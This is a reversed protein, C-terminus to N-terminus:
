AIKSVVFDLPFIAPGHALRLQRNYVPRNADGYVDERGVQLENVELWSITKMKYYLASNFGVGKQVRGRDM